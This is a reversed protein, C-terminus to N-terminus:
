TTAIQSRVEKVYQELDYDSLAYGNEAMWARLNEKDQYRTDEMMKKKIIAKVRDQRSFMERVFAAAEPNIRHPEYIDDM